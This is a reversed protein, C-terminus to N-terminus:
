GFKEISPWSSIILSVIIGGLMFLVILAALRVLASFIMDGKKGPPNIVGRTAAM